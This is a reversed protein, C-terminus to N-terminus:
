VGKMCDKSKVVQLSIFLYRLVRINLTQNILALLITISAIPVTKIKNNKTFSIKLM